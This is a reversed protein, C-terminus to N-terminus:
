MASPSSAVRATAIASLKGAGVDTVHVVVFNGYGEAVARAPGISFQRLFRLNLM